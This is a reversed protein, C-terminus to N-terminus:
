CGDTVEERDFLDYVEQRFEASVEEEDGHQSLLNIIMQRKVALNNIAREAMALGACMLMIDLELDFALYLARSIADRQNDGQWLHRLENMAKM